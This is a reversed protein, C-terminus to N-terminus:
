ITPTAYMFTKTCKSKLNATKVISNKNGQIPRGGIERATETVTRM